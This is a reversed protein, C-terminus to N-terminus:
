KWSAKYDQAYQALSRPALGTIREVADTIRESYGLKFFGLILLLFEAYDAPLGADHLVQRMQEPSVDTYGIPRNAAQSLITAVQDHDFAEKGTLDFEANEFASSTLLKAAVKAIDRADIFSGKAKGVPLLIQGQQQIGQLWYSNFNQMFWNPRIVNWSLGSSQLHLEAKRLPANDDANAGMASMLVVKGVGQARAQEILPGLLADQNTHGPPSLLFASDVGDFATQLGAGSLLNLHMQGSQNTAGSTARRVEHGDASLLASLASGVTGSSGVVLIRSM